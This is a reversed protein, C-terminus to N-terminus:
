RELQSYSLITLKEVQGDIFDECQASKLSQVSGYATAHYQAHKYKRYGNKIVLLSMLAKHRWM